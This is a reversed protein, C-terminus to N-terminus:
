RQRRKKQSRLFEIYQAVLKSEEDSLDASMLAAQIGSPRRESGKGASKKLYGAAEMLSEYPVKYFEALKYLINPSPNTAEGHELQSLYANSIGTAREVERLSVSKVGRIRRLEEALSMNM